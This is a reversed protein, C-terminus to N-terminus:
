RGRIDRVNVGGPVPRLLASDEAKTVQNDTPVVPEFVYVTQGGALKETGACRLRQTLKVSNGSVLSSTDVGQIIAARSGRVSGEAVIDYTGIFRGGDTSEVTFTPRLFGERGKECDTLSLFDGAAVGAGGGGFTISDVATNKIEQSSGDVLVTFKGKDYKTVTGNLTNGTKLRIEDAAGVTGLLCGALLCVVLRSM